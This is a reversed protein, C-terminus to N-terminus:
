PDFPYGGYHYAGAFVLEVGEGEVGVAGHGAGDGDGAVAGVGGCLDWYFFLYHAFESGRKKKSFENNLNWGDSKM